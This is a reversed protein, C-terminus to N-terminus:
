EKEEGEEEAQRQALYEAVIEKMREPDHCYTACMPEELGACGDCVASGVEGPEVFRIKFGDGDPVIRMLSEHHNFSQNCKFSCAIECTHCGGCKEFTFLM